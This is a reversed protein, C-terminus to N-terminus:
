ITAVPIACFVVFYCLSGLRHLPIYLMYLTVACHLIFLHWTTIGTYLRNKLTYNGLLARKNIKFHLIHLAYLSYIKNKM